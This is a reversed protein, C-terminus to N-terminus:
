SHELSSISACIWAKCACPMRSRCVISVASTAAARGPSSKVCSVHSRQPAVSEASASTSSWRANGRELAMSHRGCVTASIRSCTRLMPLATPSPSRASDRWADSTARRFATRCATLSLDDARTNPRSLRQGNTADPCHSGSMRSRAPPPSASASEHAPHAGRRSSHRCTTSDRGSTMTRAQQPLDALSLASSTWSWRLANGSSQSKGAM